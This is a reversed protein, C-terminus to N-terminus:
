VHARGIEAPNGSISIPIEGVGFHYLMNFQGPLFGVGQRWEAPTACELTVVDRSERKRTLVRAFAPRLSASSRAMADVETRLPAM